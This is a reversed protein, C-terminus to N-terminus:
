PAYPTYAGGDATLIADTRLPTAPKLTAITTVNRKPAPEDANGEDQAFRIVAYEGNKKELVEVYDGGGAYYCTLQAIGNKDFAAGITCAPAAFKWPGFTRGAVELQVKVWMEIPYSADNEVYKHGLVRWVIDPPPGAVVVIPAASAPAAAMAEPSVDRPDTTAHDASPRHCATVCMILVLARVAEHYRRAACVV